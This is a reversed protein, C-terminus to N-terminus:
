RLVQLLVPLLVEFQMIRDAPKFLGPLLDQAPSPVVICCYDRIWSIASNGSRSLSAKEERAPSFFPM